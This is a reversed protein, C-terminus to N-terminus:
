ERAPIHEKRPRITSVDWPIGEEELERAIGVRVVASVRTKLTAAVEIGKQWTADDIYVSSYDLGAPPVDVDEFHEPTDILEQVISTIFPSPKTRRRWCLEQMATKM